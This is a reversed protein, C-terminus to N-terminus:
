YEFVTYNKILDFPEKAETKIADIFCKIFPKEALKKTICDHCFSHGCKLIRPIRGPESQDYREECIPCIPILHSDRTLTACCKSDHIFRLERRQDAENLFKQTDNKLTIMVEEDKKLCERLRRIGATERRELRILKSFQLSNEDIIRTLKLNFAENVKAIIKMQRDANGLRIEDELKKNKINTIELEVTESELAEKMKAIETELDTVAREARTANRTRKRDIIQPQEDETQKSTGAYSRKSERLEM